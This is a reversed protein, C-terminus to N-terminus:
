RLYGGRLDIPVVGPRDPAAGLAPRELLTDAPKAREQGANAFVVAFYPLVVAGIIMVWTLWGDVLFAGVLCATRVGMAALYRLTRDHVDQSLPRGVSTISPVKAKKGM